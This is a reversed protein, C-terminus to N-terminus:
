KMPGALSTTPPSGFSLSSARTFSEKYFFTNESSPYAAKLEGGTRQTTLHDGDRRVIRETTSGRLADLFGHHGATAMVILDAGYEQAANLIAQEGRGSATARQWRWGWNM